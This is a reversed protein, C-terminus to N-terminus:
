PPGLLYCGKGNALGTKLLAEKVEGANKVPMNNITYIVQGVAVGAAESASGATVSTVKVGPSGEAVGEAEFQATAWTAVDAEPDREVITKKVAKGTTENEGKIVFEVFREASKIEEVADSWNHVFKGNIALVVDDIKLGAALAASGDTMGAVTVSPGSNQLSVGVTPGTVSKDVLLKYSYFATMLEIPDDPGAANLSAILSERSAVMNEGEAMIIEGVNLGAHALQSGPSMSIVTCGTGNAGDSVTLGLIGHKKKVIIIKASEAATASRKRTADQMSTQQMAARAKEEPSPELTGAAAAKISEMWMDQQEKLSHRLPLLNKDVSVMFGEACGDSTVVVSPPLDFDGKKKGKDAAKKDEYWSIKATGGEFMELIVYRSQWGGSKGSSPKKDLTGRRSAKVVSM